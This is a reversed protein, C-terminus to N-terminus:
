EAETVALDAELDEARAVLVEREEGSARDARDRAAKASARLVPLRLAIEAAAKEDTAATEDLLKASALLERARAVPSDERPPPPPAGWTAPAATPTVKCTDDASAVFALTMTALVVLTSVFPRMPGDYGARSSRARPWALGPGPWPRAGSIPSIAHGPRRCSEKMHARM